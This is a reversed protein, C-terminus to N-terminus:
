QDFRNSRWVSLYLNKTALYEFNEIICIVQEWSLASLKMVKKINFMNTIASQRINEYKEFQELTIKEKNM